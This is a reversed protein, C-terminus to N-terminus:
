WNWADNHHHSSIISLINITMVVLKSEDIIGNKM